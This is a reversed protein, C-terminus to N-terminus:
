QPLNGYQQRYCLSFNLRRIPGIYLLNIECLFYYIKYYASLIGQGSFCTVRNLDWCPDSLVLNLLIAFYPNHLHSTPGMMGQKQCTITFNLSPTVWLTALDTPHKVRTIFILLGEPYLLYMCPLCFVYETSVIVGKVNIILPLDKGPAHVVM